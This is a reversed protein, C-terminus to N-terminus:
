RIGGNSSNEVVRQSGQMLKALKQLLEMDVKAGEMFKPTEDFDIMGQKVRVEQNINREIEAVRTRTLFTAVTHPNLQKALTLNLNILELPDALTVRLTKLLWITPTTLPSLLTKLVYHGGTSSYSLSFYKAFSIIGFTILIQTYTPQAETDQVISIIFSLTIM